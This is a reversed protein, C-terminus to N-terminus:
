WKLDPDQTLEELRRTIIQEEQSKRLAMREKLATLKGELEQIHTLRDQNRITFQKELKIRLENRMLQREQEDESAHYNQAIQRTEKDLEKIEKRQPNRNRKQKKTRNKTRNRSGRKQPPRYLTDILHNQDEASLTDYTDRLAPYAKLAQKFRQRQVRNRLLTHFQEPDEEKMQKMKEYEEPNNKRLRDLWEYVPSHDRHPGPHGPPGFGADPPPAEMIEPEVTQQAYLLPSSLMLLGTLFIPLWKKM